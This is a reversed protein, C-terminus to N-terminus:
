EGVPESQSQQTPPCIVVTVGGQPNETRTVPVAAVTVQSICNYGQTSDPQVVQQSLTPTVSVAEPHMDESGSMSGTVGLITVNERVNEAILAAIDASGLGVTGTGDHAGQPIVVPTDRDTLTLDVGGNNTMTGTVKNGNVYATKTALIEGALANADSTDADYTCSGTVPAGDAGHATYGYLLKDAVVTDSTLDILVENGLQVKNVYTTDPM